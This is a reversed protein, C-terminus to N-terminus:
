QVHKPESQRLNNRPRYPVPLVPYIRFFLDCLPLDTFYWLLLSSPALGVDWNKKRAHLAYMGYLKMHLCLLLWKCIIHNKKYLFVQTYVKKNIQNKKPSFPSTSPFVLQTIKERDKDTNKNSMMIAHSLLASVNYCSAQTRYLCSSHISPHLVYM